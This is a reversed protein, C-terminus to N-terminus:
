IDMLPLGQIFNGHRVSSTVLACLITIECYYYYFWANGVMLRVFMEFILKVSQQKIKVVTFRKLLGYFHLNIFVCEQLQVQSEYYM